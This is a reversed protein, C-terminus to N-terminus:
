QLPRHHIESATSPRVAQLPRVPGVKRDTTRIPGTRCLHSWDLHIPHPRMELSSANNRAKSKPRITPTKQCSTAHAVFCPSESSNDLLEFQQIHPHVFEMWNWHLIAAGNLTEFQDKTFGRRCAPEKVVLRQEVRSALRITVSCRKPTNLRFVPVEERKGPTQTAADALRSTEM